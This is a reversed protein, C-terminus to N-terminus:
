KSSAGTAMLQHLSYLFPQPKHHHTRKKSFDSHRTDNSEAVQNENERFLPCMVVFM